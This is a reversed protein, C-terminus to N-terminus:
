GKQKIGFSQGFWGSSMGVCLTYVSVETDACSGAKIKKDMGEGNKETLGDM